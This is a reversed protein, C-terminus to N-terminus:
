IGTKQVSKETEHRHKDPKSWKRAIKAIDMSGQYNARSHIELNLEHAFLTNFLRRPIELSWCKSIELNIFVGGVNNNRESPEGPYAANSGDDNNIVNPLSIVFMDGSYQEIDIEDIENDKDSKLDDPYIVNFPFLINQEEEDCESLSTEDKLDFEDIHRPSITPKTLIDSKSTLADNYVIAPFENEFDKFFDLDNFYSVEHGPSSFLPMNVKENDNESDM